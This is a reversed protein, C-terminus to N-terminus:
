RKGSGKTGGSKTGGRTKTTTTTSATTISAPSSTGSEYGVQDVATATYTYTVGSTVSTDTYSLNSTAALQTGNRYVLYAAIGSGSDTSATWSVNVGTTAQSAALNGPPTPASGDVSIQAQAQGNVPHSPDSSDADTATLTVTGSGSVGSVSLSASTSQGAGISVSTPTVTSTGGVTNAASLQFTTASCGSGDLNTMQTTLSVTSGPKVWVTSPSLTMSPTQGMCNFSVNVVTSGAGHTSQTVTIGNAPDTFIGGDSLGTIFKTYSYGSGAYRHINVGGTYTSSLSADFGTPQRYSLYYYDGSDPKAILVTQPLTGDPPTGIPAIQYTGGTTVTQVSNAFADFWGLQHIHPAAANHLATSSIGMPDSLDGYPNNVIGDNEPDTGAHAWNLNHGLEHAYVMMLHPAAIWARCITACGVNAVGAWGCDPLQGYPPLVYVRHQYLGLDVGAAQAAQDAATAWSSYNCGVRSVGINFPGVVDPTGDGNSDAKFSLQEYSTSLYLKSMSQPSNYLLNSVYPVNYTCTAPDACLTADTLNLLIAIARRETAVVGAATTGGSQTTSGSGTSAAADSDALAAVDSAWLSTGMARGRVVVRHGTLLHRSPPGDFGLEYLQHDALNRVFYRIFSPAGPVGDGHLVEVEGKMVVSQGGMFPVPKHQLLLQELDGNHALAPGTLALLGLGLGLGLGLLIRAGIATIIPTKRHHTLM